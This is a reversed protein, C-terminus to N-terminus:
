ALVKKGTFRDWKTGCDPCLWLSVGDYHPLEVGILRSYYRVPCECLALPDYGEDWERLKTCPPQHGYHGKALYVRPIESANWDAGCEPCNADDPTM